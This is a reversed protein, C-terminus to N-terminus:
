SNRTLLKTKNAPVVQAVIRAWAISVSPQLDTAAPTFTMSKRRPIFIAISATMEWKFLLAHIILVGSSIVCTFFSTSFFHWVMNMNKLVKVKWRHDENELKNDSNKSIHQRQYQLLRLKIFMRLHINEQLVSATTTQAQAIHLGM